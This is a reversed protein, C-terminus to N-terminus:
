GGARRGLGLRALAEDVQREWRDGGSDIRAIRDGPWEDPAEFEARITDILGPGAESADNGARERSALRERVEDGPAVVEVLAPAVGRERAWTAVAQRWQRRSFTADLIVTRGSDIVWGAAELMREYIANRSADDYRAAVHSASAAAAHRRLWDSSIVVAGTRDALAEAVTTKGTGITGCTVIVNGAPKDRLFELGLQLHAGVSSKAHDRQASPLSEDVAVLAAVKARVLSRYSQFYDVVTFLHWDDGDRAYRRLLRAALDGRGRYRLDMALFAIDSASDICRFDERFELCDIMLAPGDDTEFWVHESHLDGHGDVIRGEDFRREFDARHRELFRAGLVRAEEVADRPALWSPVEALAAINARAPATSRAVWREDGEPAPPRIRWARHFAALTDAIRDIHAAHVVGAEVLSKLDRGTALRRMVVCHEVVDAQECPTELADGIRVKLEGAQFHIPAIGLYVDPALRRNLAVERLCDALRERPSSFDVFSLTVPRRLKYVRGPTLFVNSIHTDVREVAATNGSVSAGSGESPYAAPLVLM